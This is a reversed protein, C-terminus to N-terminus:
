CLGHKGENLVEVEVVEDIDHECYNHITGYRRIYDIMAIFSDNNWLLRCGDNLSQGLIVYHICAM